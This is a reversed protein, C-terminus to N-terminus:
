SHGFVRMYNIIAPGLLRQQNGKANLKGAQQIALHWHAQDPVMTIHSCIYIYIHTHIYVLNGKRGDM